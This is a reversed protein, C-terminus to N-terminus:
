TELRSGAKRLSGSRVLLRLYDAALNNLDLVRRQSSVGGDAM